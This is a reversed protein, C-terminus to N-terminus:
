AWDLLRVTVPLSVRTMAVPASVEPQDMSSVVGMGRSPLSTWESSDLVGVRLFEFEEFVVPDLGFAFKGRGGAHFGAV